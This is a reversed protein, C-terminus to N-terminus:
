MLIKIKNMSHTKATDQSCPIVCSDYFSWIFCVGYMHNSKYYVFINMCVSICSQIIQNFITRVCLISM